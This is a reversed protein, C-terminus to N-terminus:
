VYKIHVVKQAWFASNGDFSSTFFWDLKRGKFKSCLARFISFITYGFYKQRGLPLQQSLTDSKKRYVSYFYLMSYSFIVIIYPSPTVM